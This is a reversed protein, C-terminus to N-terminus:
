NTIEYSLTGERSPLILFLANTTVRSCAPMMALLSCKGATHVTQFAHLVEILRSQSYIYYYPRPKCQRCFKPCNPDTWSKDRCSGRFMFNRSDWCLGNTLCSSKGPCCSSSAPEPCPTETSADSGDPYYCMTTSSTYSNWFTLFSIQLIHRQLLM